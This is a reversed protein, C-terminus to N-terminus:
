DSTEASASEESDSGPYSRYSELFTQGDVHIDHLKDSLPTVPEGTELAAHVALLLSAADLVRGTPDVNGEIVDVFASLYGTYMKEREVPGGDILATRTRGSVDLFGFAGSDSPGDLRLTSYTDNEFLVNVTQGLNEAPSVTIWNSGALRHITDTLHAGYYFPHNYGAGYLMRDPARIPFEELAPHYAVSSGGFLPAADSLDALADLDELRGAIPKDILTPVGAELLTAALPLHSDWNVTLVLAGDVDAALNEPDDYLTADYTGAFSEAHDPSRVDGGDWIASVDVGDMEDLISAFADPHSSDLGLIGLRHM